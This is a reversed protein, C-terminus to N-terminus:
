CQIAGERAFLTDRGADDIQADLLDGDGQPVNLVVPQDALDGLRDAEVLHAAEVPGKALSVTACRPLPAVPESPDTAFLM